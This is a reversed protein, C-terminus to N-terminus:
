AAAEAVRQGSLYGVIGDMRALTRWYVDEMLVHAFEGNRGVSFLGAVPLGKELAARESEYSRLYIPYGVPTKLVRCGRYRERASPVIRTLHELCLQALDEDAMNWMPDSTECGIDATVLTKGEPALWPMSLPPETLRFFPFSRDPVWTTVEPLFPRGDFKLNVL